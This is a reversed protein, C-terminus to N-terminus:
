GTRPGYSVEEGVPGRDECSRGLPTARGSRLAFCQKGQTDSLADDLELFSGLELLTSYLDGLIFPLRDIPKNVVEAFRQAAQGIGAWGVQNDLRMAVTAFARAKTRLPGHMQQVVPDGAAATDTDEAQENSVLYQGGPVFQVGLRSQTLAGPFNRPDIPTPRSRSGSPGKPFFPVRV